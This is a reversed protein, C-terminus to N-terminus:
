NNQQRQRAVSNSPMDAGEGAFSGAVSGIAAATVSATTSPATWDDAPLDPRDGSTGASPPTLVPPPLPRSSLRRNEFYRAKRARRPAAGFVQILEDSLRLQIVEGSALFLRTTARRSIVLRSLWSLFQPGADNKTACLETAAGLTDSIHRAVCECNLAVAARAPCDGLPLAGQHAIQEIHKWSHDRPREDSRRQVVPQPSGLMSACDALLKDCDIKITIV